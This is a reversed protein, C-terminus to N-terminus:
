FPSNFKIDVRGGIDLTTTITYISLLYYHRHTHLYLSFTLINLIGFSISIISKM